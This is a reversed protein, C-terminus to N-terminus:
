MVSMEESLKDAIFMNGPAHSILFPIKSEMAAIQPTIGCGWFVPIEDPEQPPIVISSTDQGIDKAIEVAENIVDPHYFDKIGILSPDGIHVPPGHSELHRSCIQVARVVNRTGKALRGSVVMHGHFRGAPVCDINSKYAGLLRYQVNAARLAWQFGHSCGLLFAVLDDRWYDTIDTPEDILNGNKYIRYKPLDTRLDADPALMKPHPDGPDTVDLIPCPRPNRQCFLLMDFALDKPVIALNAQVYGQCCEETVGAFEKQRVLHRFEKPNMARLQDDTFDKRSM